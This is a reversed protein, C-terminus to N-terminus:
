EVLVPQYHPSDNAHSVALLYHGTAVRAFNLEIGLEMSGDNRVQARGASHLASSAPEGKLLDVEYLGAASGGPLKIILRTNKHPVKFSTDTSRTVDSRLDLVAVEVHSLWDRYHWIMLAVALLATAVVALSAGKSWRRNKAAIAIANSRKSALIISICDKCHNLHALVLTQTEVDHVRGAAFEELLSRSLCDGVVSPPDPRRAFARILEREADNERNRMAM